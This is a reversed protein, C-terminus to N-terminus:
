LKLISKIVLGLQEMAKEYYLNQAYIEDFFTVNKSYEREVLKAFDFLLVQQEEAVKRIISNQVETSRWPSCDYISAKLLHEVAEDIRGIRKSTQGHLYHLGANGIYKQILKSSETYANKPNNAKLQERIDFIDKELDVTSTFSCNKKPKIDLNIPTTTLIILSNRDKSLNILEILHQKYLMLETELRKLYEVEELEPATTYNESLQIRQIPTYLFRSIEPYLILMTEIRDDKYMSFNSQIKKIENTNFKSESFEESGGQYIVIQPWKTLSKLEHLTRHIGTDKKAISQIKIANDLNVSIQLALQEKFKAFYQGM